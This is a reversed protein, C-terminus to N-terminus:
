THMKQVTYVYRIHTHKLYQVIYNFKYINYQDICHLLKVAVCKYLCLINVQFSVDIQGHQM